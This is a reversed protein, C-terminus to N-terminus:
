LYCRPWPSAKLGGPDMEFTEDQEYFPAYFMSFKSILLQRRISGPRGTHPKNLRRQDELSGSLGFAISDMSSMTSRRRSMDILNYGAVM